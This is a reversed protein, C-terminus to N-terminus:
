NKHTLARTGYFVDDYLDNVCVMPQEGPSSMITVAERSTLALYPELVPQPDISRYNIKGWGTDVLHHWPGDDQAIAVIVRGFHAYTRCGLKWPAQALDFQGTVAPEVVGDRWSHLNWRGTRNSIFHLVGAPSWSPQCVSEEDSGVVLTVNEITQDSRLDAVWLRSGDWPMHPADWSVWALRRGDASPVPSTYFDQGSVIVKPRASGDAPLAVLENIVEGREHRERVCILVNTARILQLDAYRLSQPSPPEPTIPRPKLGSDGLRARYIRQDDSRCFWIDDETALYAGADYDHVNSAVRFGAPLVKEADTSDPWRSQPDEDPVASRRVLVDGDPGGEIWYVTDGVAQLAKYSM